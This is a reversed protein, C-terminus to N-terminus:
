NFLDITKIPVGSDDLEWQTNGKSGIWINSKENFYVDHFGVEKMDKLLIANDVIVNYLAFDDQKQLFINSKEGNPKLVVYFHINPNTPLLDKFTTRSIEELYTLEGYIDFYCDHSHWLEPSSLLSEIEFFAISVPIGKNNLVYYRFDIKGIILNECSFINDFQVEIQHMIVPQQKSDLIVYKDNEKEFFFLPVENKDEFYYITSSFKLKGSFLNEKLNRLINKLNFM